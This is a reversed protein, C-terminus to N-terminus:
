LAKNSSRKEEARARLSPYVSFFYGLFVLYVAFVALIQAYVFKRSTEFLRIDNPSATGFLDKKTNIEDVFKGPEEPSIAIKRGDVLNMLVLEGRRKTSYTYVRGIDAKFLGWHLGPWSGGLLRLLLTISSTQVDRIFTYPIRFKMPSFNVRFEDDRLEYNMKRGSLTMYFLLASVVAFVAAM